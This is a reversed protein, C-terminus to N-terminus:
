PLKENHPNITVRDLVGLFLGPKMVANSRVNFVSGIRALPRVSSRRKVGRFIVGGNDRM